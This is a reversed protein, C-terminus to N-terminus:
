STNGRPTRRSIPQINPVPRIPLTGPTFPPRLPGPQQITITITTPESQRGQDDIVVLQFRYRGPAMRQTEVQVFPKDTAISQRPQFPPM